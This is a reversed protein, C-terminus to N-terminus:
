SANQEKVHILSFYLINGQFDYVTKLEVKKELLLKQLLAFSINQGDPVFLEDNKLDEQKYVGKSM